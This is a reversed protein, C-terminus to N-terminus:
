AILCHRLLCPHNLFGWAYVRDLGAQYFATWYCHFTKDGKVNVNGLGDYSYQLMGDGSMGEERSEYVIM